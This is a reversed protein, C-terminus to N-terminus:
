PAGWFSSLFSNRAAVMQHLMTQKVSRKYLVLSRYVATRVRIGNLMLFYGNKLLERHNTAGM